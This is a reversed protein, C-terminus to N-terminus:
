RFCAATQKQPFNWKKGAFKVACVGLQEESDGVDVCRNPRQLRGFAVKISVECLVPHVVTM